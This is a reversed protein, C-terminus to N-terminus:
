TTICPSILMAMPSAGGAEYKLASHCWDRAPPEDCGLQLSGHGHATVPDHDHIGLYLLALVAEDIRNQKMSAPYRVTSQCIANCM